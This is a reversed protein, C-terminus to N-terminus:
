LLFLFSLLSFSYSFKPHSTILLFFFKEMLLSELVFFIFLFLIFIFFRFLRFLLFFFFCLCLFFSFSSTGSFIHRSLSPWTDLPDTKPDFFQNKWIEQKKIIEIKPDDVEEEEDENDESNTQIDENGNFDALLNTQTDEETTEKPNSKKHKLYIVYISIGLLLYTWNTIPIAVAAGTFGKKGVYVLLFCNLIHISTSIIVTVTQPLVISQAILYRKLAEWMLLPWLGLIQWYVWHQSLSAIEPDVNAFTLIKETLTWIGAIPFCAITLIVMGRQCFLGVLKYQKAGFAQTCFTDLGMSLGIAISMGSANVIM